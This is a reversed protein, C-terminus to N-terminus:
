PSSREGWQFNFTFQMPTGGRMQEVQLGSVERAARLRDLTRLLAQQDRATGSCTVLAPDRIEVTKATVSGDEPFAETLRRLVSLSRFSEDYWPRFRKIQQQVFNLENVQAKMGAWKSRWHRLQWQQVLFALAILLAVAGAAAGALFLKRSSHRAAFQKWASVKPPLFELGVGRGALCRVALSLAPSVAADAPLRVGFEDAAYSKVQEMLIGLTKVRPALQEAIEEAREGRGYLRLHRVSDRVDSPLQGLTIRLERAVPEVQFQPAGGEIEFAGEITRLVAVGGGASVQLGVSSEGVAMALVPHAPDAEPRQLVSIGLSFSVARLQAAHLVAELRTLHDRPIAVLTAYRDGGPTRFLSRQVLLAEPGYPFGREAEIQLFSDLDEPPLDPLKVTLTLAWNLPVCVACRRERIGAADLHKRIERGVLEPANTLPELSLSVSFSKKVEVSGNTRRVAVGELRSGDLALGLLSSGPQRKFAPLHRPALRRPDLKILNSM